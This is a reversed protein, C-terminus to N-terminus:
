SRIIRDNKQILTKAHTCIKRKRKGIFKFLFWVSYENKTVYEFMIINMIIRMSSELGEDIIFSHDNKSWVKQASDFRGNGSAKWIQVLALILRCSLDLRQPASVIMLQVLLLLWCTAYSSLFHRLQLALPTVAIFTAYSFYLHHLDPRQLWPMIM